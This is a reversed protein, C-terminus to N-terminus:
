IADTLGNSWREAGGHVRLEPINRPPPTSAGIVRFAASRACISQSLYQPAFKGLPSIIWADKPATKRNQVAAPTAGCRSSVLLRYTNFSHLQRDSKFQCRSSM